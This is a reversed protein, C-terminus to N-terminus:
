GTPGEEEVEEERGKEEEGEEPGQMTSATRM